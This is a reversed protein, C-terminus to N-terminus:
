AASCQMLSCQVASSINCQYWHLNLVSIMILKIRSVLSKCVSPALVGIKHYNQRSLLRTYYMLNLLAWHLANCYLAICHIETFILLKCLCYAVTQQLVTCISVFDHRLSICKVPCCQVVSCEVSYCHKLSKYELRCQVIKGDVSSCQVASCQVIM